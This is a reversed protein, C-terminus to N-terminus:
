RRTRARVRRGTVDIVNVRTIAIDPANPRMIVHLRALTSTHAASGRDFV